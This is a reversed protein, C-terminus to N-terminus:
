RASCNAAAFTYRRGTRDHQLVCHTGSRLLRFVEPRGLERGNLPRGQADRPQAHDIALVSSVTLADDALRVPAGNLTESVFRALEARVQPSPEVLVADSEAPMTAACAALGATLAALARLRIQNRL